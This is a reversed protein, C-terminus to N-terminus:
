AFFDVRVPQVTGRVANHIFWKSLDSRREDTAHQADQFLPRVTCYGAGMAFGNSPKEPIMTLLEHNPAFRCDGVPKRCKPGQPVVIGSGRYIENQLIQDLVDCGYVM